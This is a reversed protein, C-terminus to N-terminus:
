IDKPLVPLKRFDNLVGRAIKKTMLGYDTNIIGRCFIIATYWYNNGYDYFRITWGNRLKYANKTKVAKM